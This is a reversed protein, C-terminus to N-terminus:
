RLPTTGPADPYLARKCDPCIGHSFDANTHNRIYIELSQWHGQTDRIKRCSACMPLLGSLTRVQSLAYQLERILFIRCAAPNADLIPGDPDTLMVGDLSNNFLM